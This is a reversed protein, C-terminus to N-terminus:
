KRKDKPIVIFSLSFCFPFNLALSFNLWLVHSSIIDKIKPERISQSDNHISIYLARLTSLNTFRSLYRDTSIPCLWYKIHFFQHMKFFQVSIIVYNNTQWMQEHQFEQFVFITKERTCILIFVFLFYFKFFYYYLYLTRQQIDDCKEISIIVQFVSTIAFYLFKISM